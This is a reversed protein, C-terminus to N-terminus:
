GEVMKRDICKKHQTERNKYIAKGQKMTVLLGTQLRTSFCNNHTIPAVKRSANKELYQGEDVQLSQILWEWNEGERIFLKVGEMSSREDLVVPM